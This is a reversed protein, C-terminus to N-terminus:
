IRVCGIRRASEKKRGQHHDKSTLICHVNHLHVVMNFHSLFIEKLIMLFLLHFIFPFSSTFLNVFLFLFLVFNINNQSGPFDGSDIEGSRSKELSQM